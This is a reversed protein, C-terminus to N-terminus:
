LVHKELNELDCVFGADEYIYVNVKISRQLSLLWGFREVHWRCQIYVNCRKTEATCFTESLVAARFQSALLYYAKSNLLSISHRVIM